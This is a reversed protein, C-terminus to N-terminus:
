LHHHGTISLKVWEVIHLENLKEDCKKTENSKKTEDSKKRESRATDEDIQRQRM